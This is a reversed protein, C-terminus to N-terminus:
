LKVLEVRRNKAKGAETKNSDIPKTDGFGETTLRAAAVGANAVLWDKVAQARKKSLELNAKEKGVNDTHGEVRLKWNPKSKLLKGIERLVKSSDPTIDAKGTAFNIGYVAVRGSKEIEGALYGADLEVKQEMAQREVVVLFGSGGWSTSCTLGIHLEAGGAKPTGIASVWQEGEFEYPQGEAEPIKRGTHSKLGAAKFANEFNRVIQTCSTKRPYLYNIWTLKGEVTEMETESIPLKFSEFERIEERSIVSGPYRKVAPHDKAGEMEEAPMEDDALAPLSLLTLALMSGFAVPALDLSLVALCRTPIKM